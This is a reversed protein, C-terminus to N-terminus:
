NRRSRKAEIVSLAPRWPQKGSFPKGGRGIKVPNKLIASAGSDIFDDPQDKVAPNWERMQEVTGNEYLRSHMWLAGSILPPEIGAVIRENKNGKAPEAIITCGHERMRKRAKAPVFQGIGNTEIYLSPLRYRKVM